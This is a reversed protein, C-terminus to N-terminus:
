TPDWGGAPELGRVLIQPFEPSATMRLETLWESGFAGHVPPVLIPLLIRTLVPAEGEFTFPEAAIAEAERVIVRVKATGPVNRPTRVIITHDDFFERTAELRGFYITPASGTEHLGSGQITVKTGGSTPGSLPSVSTIVPAGSLGGAAIMLVAILALRKM